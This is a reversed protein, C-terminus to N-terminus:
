NKRRLKKLNLLFLIASLLVGAGMAIYTKYRGFDKMIQEFAGASTYGFYVVLAAWLFTSIGVLLCYKKYPIDTTGIILPTVTRIGYIFRFGLVFYTSYREIYNKVKHLKKLLRPHKELAEHGYHRGVGFLVTDHFLAGMFAILVVLHVDLIQYYASVGALILIMEGEILAGGIVIWYKYEQLLHVWFKHDLIKQFFTFDAAWDM